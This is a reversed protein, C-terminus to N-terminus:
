RRVEEDKDDKKSARFMDSFNLESRPFKAQIAAQDYAEAAEKATSFSGISRQKGSFTIQARFRNGIKYVGKFGTTNNSQLGNNKPKYTKPIQDLFNLKSTPKGAQIAAHDFAEAAEKPTDFMGLAQMKGDISIQAQFRKGRKTIGKFKVEKKTGDDNKRKRKPM